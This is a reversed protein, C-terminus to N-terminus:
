KQAAADYIVVGHRVAYKVHTWAGPDSGPVGALITLDGEMGPAIRGKRASVGFEQAPSTTLMTLIDRFSFGALALQKYEEQLDYDTLFGTDTGFMLQGGLESFRHLRARIVAIDPDQAFLKLTPVIAMHQAVLKKLLADDLGQTVEPTHALVDVGAAAAVQVGELNTAHSFVLQGHKHATEAAARAIDVRMPVIHDPAVISGTFLKTLDTGLAINNEVTAAAAAPTEPQPLAALVPPPLDQLYYPLAHFPYLPVGATYIHPGPIEGSEIRQRLAITNSGDSGTDVVTTFGSHTLMQRISRALGPAPSTKADAWKPETFHVHANWFGAFVACEDCQVVTAGKPAPTARSNGVAVIKGDQILVTAEALPKTDPSTYVRAAHIVLTQAAASGCLLVLLCATLTGRARSM